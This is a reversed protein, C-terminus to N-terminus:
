RYVVEIVKWGFSAWRDPNVGGSSGTGYTFGTLRIDREVWQSPMGIEHILAAVQEQDAPWCHDYRLMDVPFHGKGRVTFSLFRVRESM